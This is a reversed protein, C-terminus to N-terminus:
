ESLVQLAVLAGHRDSESVRRLLAHEGLGLLGRAAQLAVWASADDLREELLHVEDTGGLAALAAVAEARLLDDASEVLPRVRHLDGSHGLKTLLRLCAALLERDREVELLRSAIGASEVDNLGGLADAAVARLFPKVESDSLTGRLLPAADPGGSTLMGALFGRSWLDFRSLHQLVAPFFEPLNAGFLSRAAIMAVLPSPDELAEVVAQAYKPMGMEALTGVARARSEPTGGKVRAVVGPLYPEAIALVADREEGRLRQSYRLLFSLFFLDDGSGVHEHVTDPAAAGSLVDLIAPEWVAELANWKRAKRDNLLRLRVAALGFALSFALLLAIGGWLFLFLQDLTTMAGFPEVFASTM